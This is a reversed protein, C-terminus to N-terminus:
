RTGRREVTWSGGTLAREALAEPAYGTVVHPVTESVDVVDVPVQAPGHLTVTSGLEPVWSLEFSLTRAGPPPPVDYAETPTVVEAGPVAPSSCAFVLWLLLHM